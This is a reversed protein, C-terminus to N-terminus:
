LGSGAVGALWRPECRSLLVGVTDTDINAVVIDPTGNGDLDAIAM